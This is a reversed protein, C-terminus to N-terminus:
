EKTKIAAFEAEEKEKIAKEELAKEAAVKDEETEENGPIVKKNSM